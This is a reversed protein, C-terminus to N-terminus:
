NIREGKSNWQGDKEPDYLRYQGQDLRYYLDRQGGPYHRRSPHNVCDAFVQCRVTGDNINPHEKRVEKIVDAPKFTTDPNGNTIRIVAESIVTKVKVPENWRPVPTTSGRGITPGAQDYGVREETSIFFEGTKTRHVQYELCNIDVGYQQRLHATVQRIIPSIEEAVIFLRQKRNFDVTPPEDSDLYFAEQFVTKLDKGENEGRQHWYALAIANLDSYSLSAGWSAYELIQAVVERPTRGKKLEVVILHGDADIGILDPYKDGEGVTATVQRGIWLVTGEQDEGLLVAPSNELWQEFSREYDISDTKARELVGTNTDGPRAMKLSYLAM